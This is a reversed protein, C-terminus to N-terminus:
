PPDVASGIERRSPRLLDREAHAVSSRSRTPSGGTPAYTLAKLTILSRRVAPAYGGDYGCDAM